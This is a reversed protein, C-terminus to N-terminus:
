TYLKCRILLRSYHPIAWISKATRKMTSRLPLSITEKSKNMRDIIYGAPNESGITNVRDRDLAKQQGDELGKFTEAPILTKDYEQVFAKHNVMDNAHVSPASQENRTSQHAGEPGFPSERTSSSRGHRHFSAVSEDRSPRLLYGLRRM